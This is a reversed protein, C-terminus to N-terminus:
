YLDNLARNNHHQPIPHYFLALVIAIIVLLSGRLLPLNAGIQIKGLMFPHLNGCAVSCRFRYVGPHTAIFTARAPQGPEAELNLSYGDLSLGHKVDTAVLEITVREGPSIYIQEPTFRYRSAEIRIYSESIPASSLPMPTGLIIAAALIFILGTRWQLSALHQVVTKAHKM